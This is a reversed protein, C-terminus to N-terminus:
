FRFCCVVKLAEQWLNSVARGRGGALPPAGLNSLCQPCHAAGGPGHFLPQSPLPANKMLANRLTKVTWGAPSVAGLGCIFLRSM